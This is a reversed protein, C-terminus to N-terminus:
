KSKGKGRGKGTGKSKNKEKGRGKAKAPHVCARHHESIADSGGENVIKIVNSKLLLPEHHVKEDIVKKVSHRLVQLKSQNKPWFNRAQRVVKEYGHEVEASLVEQHYEQKGLGANKMMLGPLPTLFTQNWNCRLRVMITGREDNKARVCAGNEDNIAVHYPGSCGCQCAGVLNIDARYPGSCGCQKSHNGSGEKRKRVM